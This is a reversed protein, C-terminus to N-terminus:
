EPELYGIRLNTFGIRNCVSFADAVAGHVVRSDGRVLVSVDPDKKRAAIMREQLVALDVVETGLYYRGDQRVNIVITNHKESLGMEPSARTLQIEQDREEEQFTSTAIFFIILIFLVDLLSSINIVEGEGEFERRIRM